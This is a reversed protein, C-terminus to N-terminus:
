LIFCIDSKGPPYSAYIEDLTEPSLKPGGEGEEEEGADDDGEEEEQVKKTAAKKKAPKKKKKAPKKPPKTTSVFDEDSEHSADSDVSVYVYFDREKRM